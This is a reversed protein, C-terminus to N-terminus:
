ADAGSRDLAARGAATITLAPKPGSTDISALGNRVLVKSTPESIDVRHGGYGVTYAGWGSSFIGRAAPGKNVLRELARRQAESLPM